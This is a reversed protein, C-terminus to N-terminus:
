AGVEAMSHPFRTPTFEITGAPVTWTLVPAALRGARVSPDQAALDEAREVDVGWMSLGRFRAGPLPGAALLHGAEHLGANYDLHADQLAGLAAEDLQPGESRLTLLTVPSRDFSLDGAEAVSRPFRSDAFAVAGAPVMWPLVEVSLRGALVAPDQESFASVQEPSVSWISLGRLEADSLPGAALLHGEDHLGARYALHADQVAAPDALEPADPRLRLLAITFRDFEM